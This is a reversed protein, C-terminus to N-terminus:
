SSDFSHFRDVRAFVCPPVVEVDEKKTTKKLSAHGSKLGSSQALGLQLITTSLLPLLQKLGYLFCFIQSSCPLWRFDYVKIVASENLLSFRFFVHAPYVVTIILNQIRYAYLM